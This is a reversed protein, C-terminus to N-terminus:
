DKPNQTPVDIGARRAVYAVVQALEGMAHPNRRYPDFLLPHVGAARAGQIDDKSDGVHVAEAPRVGLAELVIAFFRPDPKAVGELASVGIYDFFEALGTARLVGPLTWDWNSVVGLKFGLGRLEALAERAGPTVPWVQPNQWNQALYDAVAEAHEGLGIGEMIRRHFSRWFALATAEDTAQMHHLAYHAYAERTAQPLRTPDAKAALGRAELLPWLWLKPHGLILTDGVDFLVARIM